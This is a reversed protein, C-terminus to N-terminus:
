LDWFKFDENRYYWSLEIYTTSCGHDREADGVIVMKVFMLMEFTTRCCTFVTMTVDTPEEDDRCAGEDDNLM